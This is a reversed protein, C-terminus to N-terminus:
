CGTLHAAPCSLPREARRRSGAGEAPARSHMGKGAQGAGGAAAYAHHLNRGVSDGAGATTAAAPGNVVEAVEPRITM